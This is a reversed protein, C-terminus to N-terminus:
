DFNEYKRRLIKYMTKRIPVIMKWLKTNKLREYKDVSEKLQNDLNKIQDNLQAILSLEYGDFVNPPTEFKIKLEPHENSIYFRNIGDFYVFEYGADLLIYEWDNFSVEETMPKTAEVLVIWPKSINFDGGELVSKEAGEVDIKLFHIDSKGKCYENIISELKRVPVEYEKVEFPLNKAHKIATDKDLTSLGSNEVEYFTMVANKKSLALRLNIDNKRNLELKEFWYNVPEINIGSWKNDYFAKTVSHIEPDNAGVDIYFGNKIHKLARWLMVDELNQSYSIFTM